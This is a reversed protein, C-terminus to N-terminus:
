RGDKRMEKRVARVDKVANTYENAFDRYAPTNSVPTDRFWQNIQQLGDFLDEYSGPIHPSRRAASMLGAIPAELPSVVDAPEGLGLTRIASRLGREIPSEVVSPEQEVWQQFQHKPYIPM